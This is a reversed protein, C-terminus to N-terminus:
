LADVDTGLQSHFVRQPMQLLAREILQPGRARNRTDNESGAKGLLDPLREVTDYAYHARPAIQSRVARDRGVLTKAHDSDELRAKVIEVCVPGVGRQLRFLLQQRERVFDVPDLELEVIQIQRRL